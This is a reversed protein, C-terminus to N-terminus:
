NGHGVKTVMMTVLALFHVLIERERERERTSTREFYMVDFQWWAVDEIYIFVISSSYQRFFVPMIIKKKRWAAIQFHISYYLCLTTLFVNRYKRNLFLWKKNGRGSFFIKLDAYREIVLVVVLYLKKIIYRWVAVWLYRQFSVFQPM